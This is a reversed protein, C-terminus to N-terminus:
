HVTQRSYWATRHPQDPLSMSEFEALDDFAQALMEITIHRAERPSIDYASFLDALAEILEPVDLITIDPM